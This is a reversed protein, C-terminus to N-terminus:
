AEKNAYYVCRKAASARTAHGGDGFKDKPYSKWDSHGVRLVHGVWEGNLYVGYGGNGDRQFKVIQM